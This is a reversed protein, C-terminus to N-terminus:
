GSRNRNEVSLRAERYFVHRGIRAVPKQGRAWSPRIYVAHYLTAGSLQPENRGYYVTAAVDQASRWGEGQPMPRVDFETWSFAGVYRKRRRDWNKEYVVECVSNPYHSSAVRNM